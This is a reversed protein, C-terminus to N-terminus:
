LAAEKQVEEEKISSTAADLNEMADNKLVNEEDYIFSIYYPQGKYLVVEGENPHGSPYKTPEQGEYFPQRSLKKIIQGPLTDGAQLNLAELEERKATIFVSKNSEALFGNRVEVSKQDLRIVGYEPNHKAPSIVDGTTPHSMVTVPQKKSLKKMKKFNKLTKIINKFLM